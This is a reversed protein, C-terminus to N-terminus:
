YTNKVNLIDFPQLAILNNMKNFLNQQIQDYGDAIIEYNILNFIKRQHFYHLNNPDALAEIVARAFEAKLSNHKALFKQHHSKYKLYEFEM